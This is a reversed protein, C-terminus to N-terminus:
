KDGLQKEIQAATKMSGDANKGVFFLGVALVVQLILQTYNIDAGANAALYTQVATVIVTVISLVTTIIDKINTV